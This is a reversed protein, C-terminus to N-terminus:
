LDRGIQQALEAKRSLLLTHQHASGEELNRLTDISEVSLGVCLTHPHVNNVLHIPITFLGSPKENNIHGLYEFSSEEAKSIYVATGSGAPLPLQGTLFVVIKDSSLPLCFTIAWRSEGIQTFNFQPPHGPLVCGFM